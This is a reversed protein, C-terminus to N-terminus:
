YNAKEEKKCWGSYFKSHKILIFQSSELTKGTSLSMLLKPRKSIHRVYRKKRWSTRMEADAFCYKGDMMTPFFVFDIVITTEKKSAPKAYTHMIMLQATMASLSQAITLQFQRAFLFRPMIGQLHSSKFPQTNM